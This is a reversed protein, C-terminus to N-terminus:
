AYKGKDLESLSEQSCAFKSLLECFSDRPMVKNVIQRFREKPSAHKKAVSMAKMQLYLIAHFYIWCVDETWTDQRIFRVNRLWQLMATRAPVRSELQRLMIIIFRAYHEAPNDDEEIPYSASNRWNPKHQHRRVLTLTPAFTAVPLDWRGRVYHRNFDRLPRTIEPCAFICEARMRALPDLNSGVGFGWLPALAASVVAISTKEHKFVAKVFKAAEDPNDIVPNIVCVTNQEEPVSSVTAQQPDSMKADHCHIISRSPLSSKSLRLTHLYILASSFSTETDTSFYMTLILDRLM